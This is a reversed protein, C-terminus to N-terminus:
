PRQSVTCERRQTHADMASPISFIRRVHFLEMHDTVNPKPPFQPRFGCIQFVLVLTMGLFFAGHRSVAVAGACVSAADRCSDCAHLGPTDSCHEDGTIPSSPPAEEELLVGLPRPLAGRPCASACTTADDLPRPLGTFVVCTNLVVALGIESSSKLATDFPRAVFGRCFVLM